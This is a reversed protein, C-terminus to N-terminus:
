ISPEPESLSYPFGIIVTDSNSSMNNQHDIANWKLKICCESASASGNFLLPIDFIVNYKNDDIPAEEDENPYVTISAGALLAENPINISHILINLKSYHENPINGIRPYADIVDPKIVNIVYSGSSGIIDHNINEMLNSIIPPSGDHIRIEQIFDNNQLPGYIGAPVNWTITFSAYSKESELNPVNFLIKYSNRTFYSNNEQLINEDVTLVTNNNIENWQNNNYYMVSADSGEKVSISYNLTPHVFLASNDLDNEFIKDKYLPVPLFAELYNQGDVIYFNLVDSSGSGMNTVVNPADNDLIFNVNVITDVDSITVNGIKDTAKWKINYIINGGGVIGFEPYNVSISVTLSAIPTYEVLILGSADIVSYEISIDESAFVNDLVSPVDIEVIVDFDKPNSNSSEYYDNGVIITPGSNDTIRITQSVHTEANCYDIIKKYEKILDALKKIEVEIESIGLATSSPATPSCAIPLFALSFLLAYGLILDIHWLVLVQTM